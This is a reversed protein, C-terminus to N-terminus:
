TGPTARDNPFNWPLWAPPNAAVEGPHEGLATLYDLPNVGNLECTHIVSMFADGVDAGRQTKYFLANKRHLIARKLARECINNDLPAGPERLFLTLPQWHDLLYDIAEGLASNPEISKQKTLQELWEKLMEMVPGSKAQHYALREAATLSAQKAEADHKYVLGLQELIHRVEAPFSNALPVFHRRGHAMCNALRVAVDKPLNRNLADCMQVPAALEAARKQLLDTLNEGAHQGGTFFLAIRRSGVESVIGTTFIGTRKKKVEAANREKALSLVRAFTDDNYLVDGQAAQRILEKVAPEIQDALQSVADWQTSPALPVDLLQELKALRYFPVGAGYKLLAIIARATADYTDPGM